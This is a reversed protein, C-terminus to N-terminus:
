GGHFMPVLVVEDGPLLLTNLDSLARAEVGNVLILISDRRTSIERKQDLITLVESLKSPVNVYEVDIEEGRPTKRLSGILHIAACKGPEDSFPSDNLISEEKM